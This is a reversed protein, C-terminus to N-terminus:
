HTESPSSKKNMSYANQWFFVSEICFSMLRSSCENYQFKGVWNGTYAMDTYYFSTYAHKSLSEACVENFYQTHM